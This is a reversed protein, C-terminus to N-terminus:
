KHFHGGLFLGLCSNGRQVRSLQAAPRQRHIFCPRLSGSSTASPSTKSATTATTTAEAPFATTPELM